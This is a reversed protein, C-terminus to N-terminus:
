FNGRLFLKVKILQFWTRDYFSNVCFNNQILIIYMMVNPNLYFYKKYEKFTRMKNIM